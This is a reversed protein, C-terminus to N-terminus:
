EEERETHDKENNSNEEKSEEHAFVAGDTKGFIKSLIGGLVESVKTPENEPVLAPQTEEAFALDLKVLEATIHRCFSCGVLHRTIPKAELETLNGEVFATLTDEDLHDVTEFDNILAEKRLYSDVLGQIKIERPNINGKNNNM